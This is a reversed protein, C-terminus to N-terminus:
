ITMEISNLFDIVLFIQKLEVEQVSTLPTSQIMLSNSRIIYKEMEQTIDAYKLTPINYDYRIFETGVNNVEFEEKQARNINSKILLNLLPPFNDISKRCLPCTFSILKKCCELHIGHNCSLIFLDNEILCVPCQENFLKTPSESKFYKYSKKLFNKLFM